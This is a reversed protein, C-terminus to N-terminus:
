NTTAPQSSDGSAPADQGSQEAPADSFQKLYAIVDRRDEEGTLRFVMKSQGKAKDAQGQEELYNRLFASPNDLYNFLNEETWVLGAEGAAKNLNSYRYGEVTGATRGILDNQVPGIKNRANEGVAHCTQCRRFVKEGEAPDGEQALVTAPTFAVVAAALAKLAFKM